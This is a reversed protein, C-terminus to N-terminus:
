GGGPGPCTRAAGDGGPDGQPAAPRQAEAAAGLHKGVAGIGASGAVAIAALFGWAAPPGLSILWSLVAVGGSSVVAWSLQFTAVYRGRLAEPAAEASLANMVPVQILEGAAFLVVGAGVIAVAIVAPFPEAALFVLASVATLLGALVLMRIRGRGEIRAVVPGQAFAVLVCLLGFSVGATWAPLALVHVLYVPLVVDLATSALAFLTNVATLMLYPRDALVDRWGGGAGEQHEPSPRPALRIRMVLLGALLFSAANGLVVVHYALVGGGTVAVGAVVGGLAFGINRVASIFGFWRERQGAPAIQAVLPVYCSWYARNGAQVALSAALLAPFSRVELYAAFGAARALNSAIVVPRPGFRDAFAGCLPGLPLALAGAVALALGIQAVGLRTTALFYLITFPLFLGTGLADIVMTWVLPWQGRVDPLGWRQAARAMGM